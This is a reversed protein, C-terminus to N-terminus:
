ESPKDHEEYYEIAKNILRKLDEMLAKAESENEFCSANIRGDPFIGVVV